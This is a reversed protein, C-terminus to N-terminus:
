VQMILQLGHQLRYMLHLASASSETPRLTLLDLLASKFLITVPEGRDVAWEVHEEWDKNEDVINELM